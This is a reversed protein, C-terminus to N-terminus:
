CVHTLTHSQDMNDLGEYLVYSDYENAVDNM